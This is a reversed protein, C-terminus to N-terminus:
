ESAAEATRVFAELENIRVRWARRDLKVSEYEAASLEGEAYKIAKYDTESLKAKLAKIEAHAKAIAPIYVLIHETSENGNADTTKLTTSVLQGMDLNVDSLQLEKTRTRNFIKM